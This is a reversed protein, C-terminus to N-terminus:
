VSTSLEKIFNSPTQKMIEKFVKNFTSKSNFGSDLSLALITHHEHEGHQIKEIFSQVRFRNVYDYFNSNHIDNLLWSLNNTSTNLQKALDALTLKHNLYVKEHVMANKLAETIRESETPTLREKKYIKKKNKPPIRFIEPQKLSYFGVIYIFIPICVWVMNYNIYPSLKFPIFYNSFSILWAIMFTSIGLLLFYLYRHINQTYSLEKKEAKRYKKVIYFAFIVYTINSIIATLETFLYILNFKGNKIMNILENYEISVVILAYIFHLVAPIFHYYSLKKKTKTLLNVTYLYLLPGFIFIITEAVLAIKHLTPSFYKFLFIRGSLMITASFLLFALLTNASKNKDRVLLITIGLFFGQSVGVFLLLDLFVFNM